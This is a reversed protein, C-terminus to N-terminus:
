TIRKKGSGSGGVTLVRNIILFKHGTQIIIKETKQQLM